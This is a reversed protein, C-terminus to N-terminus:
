VPGRYQTLWKGAPYRDRLIASVPFLPMHRKAVATMNNYPAILLMGQVRHPHAGALYSAVGTGLSEGILFVGCDAPISKLAEEAALLITSQSPSGDRGGYGPYEFVYFDMPALAQFTDAYHFRDIACGANGHLALVCQKAPAQSLRFWGIVRGQADRWRRFGEKRAEVELEAHSSTCPFYMMRRQALSRLVLCVLGLGSEVFLVRVLLGTRQM